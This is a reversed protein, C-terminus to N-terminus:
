ASVFNLIIAFIATLVLAASSAILIKRGIRPNAPAGVDHGLKPNDELRHGSSLIALFVLWFIIVFVLILSLINM